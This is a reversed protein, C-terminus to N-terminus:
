RRADDPEIVTGQHAPADARRSQAAQATLGWIRAFGAADAGSFAGPKEGYIAGQRALLSDPSRLGTVDFGGSRLRVRAEGQVYRQTSRLYAEIDERCPDYYRGEHLLDGYTAAVLRKLRLQEKTLVLKELERHAEIIILPAPAEFAVRGKFGLITDGIHVGRGIGFPRALDRVEEILRVGTLRQGDLSRPVGAEFGLILERQAEGSSLPQQRGDYVQDPVAKWPDHIERGGITSGWLGPNVSYPPAEGSDQVYRGFGRERLYAM